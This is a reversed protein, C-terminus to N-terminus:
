SQLGSVLEEMLILDKNSWVRQKLSQEQTM